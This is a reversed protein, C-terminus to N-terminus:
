RATLPFPQPPEVLKSTKTPEYNRGSVFFTCDDPGRYSQNTGGSFFPVTTMIVDPFFPETMQWSHKPPNMIIVQFFFHETTQSNTPSIRNLDQCSNPHKLLNVIIVQFFSRVTTQGDTPIIIVVLFFCDNSPHMIVDFFFPETTQGDTPISPPTACAQINQRNM